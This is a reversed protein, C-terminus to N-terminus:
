RGGQRNRKLNFCVDGGFNGPDFNKRPSAIKPEETGTIAEIKSRMIGRLKDVRKVHHDIPDHNCELTFAM